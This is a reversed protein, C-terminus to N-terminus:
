MEFGKIINNYWVIELDDRQEPMYFLIDDIQVKQANNKKYKRRLVGEGKNYGDIRKLGALKGNGYIILNYNEINELPRNEKNIFNIKKEYDNTAKQKDIYSAQYLNFLGNALANIYEEGQQNEYFYKLKIYRQLIRSKIEISDQINFSKGKSWDILKYPIVANFSFEKKYSKLAPYNSNTEDALNYSFITKPENLSGSADWSTEEVDIKFSSNEGINELTNGKNDMSPYIEVVLSQVGSNAICSNINNGMFLAEDEYKNIIPIDNVLVTYTLNSEIRIQYLPEYPYKKLGKVLEKIEVKNMKNSKNKQACSNVFIVITIFIIINRMPLTNHQCYLYNGAQKGNM